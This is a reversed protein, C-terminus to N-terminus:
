HIHPPDDTPDQDRSRLRVARLKLVRNGPTTSVTEYWFNAIDVSVFGHISPGAQRTLSGAEPVVRGNWEKAPDRRVTTYHAKFGWGACRTLYQVRRLLRLLDGERM